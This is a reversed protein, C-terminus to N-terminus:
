KRPTGTSALPVIEAVSQVEALLIGVVATIKAETAADKIHLAPLLGNLTAQVADACDTDPEVIGTAGDCEGESVACDVIADVALGNGGGCRVQVTQL